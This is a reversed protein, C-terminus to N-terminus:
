SCKQRGGTEYGYRILEPGLLEEFLGRQAPEVNDRWKRNADRFEMSCVVNMFDNDEALKMHGLAARMSDEPSTTLDEYRLEVYRDGIASGTYRLNDMLIKWQLGALVYNSKGSREWIERDAESLEGWRWHEPGDRGDWWDQQLLSYAV